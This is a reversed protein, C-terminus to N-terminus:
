VVFYTMIGYICLSCLSILFSINGSTKKYKYVTNMHKQYIANQKKEDQKIAVLKKWDDTIYRRANKKLYLPLESVHITWPHSTQEYKINGVNVPVGKIESNPIIAKLMKEHRRVQAYPNFRSSKVNNNLVTINQGWANGVILGNWNKTEMIMIKGDRLLVIHDIQSTSGNVELKLDDIHEYDSLISSVIDEGANGADMKRKDNKSSSFNQYASICFFLIAIFLFIDTYQLDM